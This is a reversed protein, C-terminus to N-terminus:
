GEVEKYRKVTINRKREYFSDYVLFSYYFTGSFFDLLVTFLSLIKSVILFMKSTEKIDKCM